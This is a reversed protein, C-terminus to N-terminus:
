RKETVERWAGELIRMPAASRMTCQSSAGFDYFMHSSPCQLRTTRSIHVKKIALFALKCRQDQPYFSQPLALVDYVISLVPRDLIFNHPCSTDFTDLVPPIGM